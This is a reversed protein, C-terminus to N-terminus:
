VFTIVAKDESTYSVRGYHYRGELLALLKKFSYNKGKLFLGPLLIVVGLEYSGLLLLFTNEPGAFFKKPCKKGLSNLIFPKSLKKSFFQM